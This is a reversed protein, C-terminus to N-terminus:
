LDTREYIRESVQGGGKKNFFQGLAPGKKRLSVVSKSEAASNRNGRKSAEPPPVVYPYLGEDLKGQVLSEMIEKVTPTYRSLSYGGEESAKAKAKKLAAKSQGKRSGSRQMMVGLHQLNLLAAEERGADRIQGVKMLMKRDREQIGEQTIIFM